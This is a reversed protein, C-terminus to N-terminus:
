AIGDPRIELCVKAAGAGPRFLRMLSHVASTLIM